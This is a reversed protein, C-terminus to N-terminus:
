LEAEETLPI